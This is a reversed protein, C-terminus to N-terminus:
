RKKQEVIFSDTKYNPISFRYMFCPNGAYLGDTQGTHKGVTGDGRQMAQAIGVVEVVTM